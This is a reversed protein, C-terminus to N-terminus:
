LGSTMTFHNMDCPNTRNNYSILELFCACAPYSVINFFHMSDTDAPNNPRSAWFLRGPIIEALLGSASLISLDM